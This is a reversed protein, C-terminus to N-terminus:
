KDPEPEMNGVHGDKALKLPAAGADLHKAGIDLLVAGDDHYIAANAEGLQATDHAADVPSVEVHDLPTKPAAAITEMINQEPGRVSKRPVCIDPTLDLHLRQPAYHEKELRRVGLLDGVEALPLLPKAALSHALVGLEPRRYRHKEKPLDRHLSSSIRTM